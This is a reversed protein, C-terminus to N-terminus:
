QNEKVWKTIDYGAYFDKATTQLANELTKGNLLMEDFKKENDLSFQKKAKVILEKSVMKKVMRKKM